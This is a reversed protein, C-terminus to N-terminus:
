PLISKIGVGILILGGVFKAPKEWRDQAKSGILLGVSSIIFVVTAVSVVSFIISTGAIGLGAGVAIADVSTAFALGIMSGISFPNSGRAAITETAAKTNHISMEEFAEENAEKVISNTKTKEEHRKLLAGRIMSTGIGALLIFVIWNGIGSILQAAAAGVISGLAM